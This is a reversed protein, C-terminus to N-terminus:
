ENTVAFWLDISHASIEKKALVVLGPATGDQGSWWQLVKGEQMAHLQKISVQVFGILKPDIASRKQYFELRM